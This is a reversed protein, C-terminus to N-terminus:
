DPRDKTRYTRRLHKGKPYLALPEDATVRKKKILRRVVLPSMRASLGSSIKFAMARLRSLLGALRIAEIWAM